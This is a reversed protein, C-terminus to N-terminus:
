FSGKHMSLFDFNLASLAKELFFIFFYVRKKTEWMAQITQKKLTFDRHYVRGRYYERENRKLNFKNIKLQLVIM